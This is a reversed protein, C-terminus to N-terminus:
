HRPKTGFKKFKNVYSKIDLVPFVGISIGSPISTVKFSIFITTFSLDPSFNNLNELVDPTAFWDDGDLHIIIDEDKIDFEDLYKTYNYTAGQNKKNKILRFKVNNGVLKNVLKWTNDTSKDDIYLEYSKRCRHHYENKFANKISFPKWFAGM